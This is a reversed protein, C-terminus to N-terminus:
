TGSGHGRGRAADRAGGAANRATGAAREAKGAAEMKSNHILRGVSEKVTGKVRKAAGTIRDKDM